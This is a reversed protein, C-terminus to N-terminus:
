DNREFCGHEARWRRPLSFGIRIAPCFGYNATSGTLRSVVANCLESYHSQRPSLIVHKYAQAWVFAPDHVHRHEGKYAWVRAYVRIYVFHLINYMRTRIRTHWARARTSLLRAASQPTTFCRCGQLDTSSHPLGTLIEGRRARRGSGRRESDGGVFLRKIILDDRVRRGERYSQVLKATGCGWRRPNITPIAARSGRRFLSLSPPASKPDFEDHLWAILWIIYAQWVFGSRRSRIAIQM